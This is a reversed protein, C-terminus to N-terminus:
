CLVLVDMTIFRRVFDTKNKNFRVLCQESINMHTPKQDATFLRTVWRACLKKMDLEEHLVYGLCEKLIGITESIERVKMRRVDLVM